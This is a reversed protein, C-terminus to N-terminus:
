SRHYVATSPSTCDSSLKTATGASSARRRTEVAAVRQVVLTSPTLTIVTLSRDREWWSRRRVKRGTSDDLVGHIYRYLLCFHVQVVARATRLISM